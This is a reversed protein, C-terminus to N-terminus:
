LWGLLKVPEPRAQTVQVAMCLAIAGDINEGASPGQRDALGARSPPRAPGEVLVDVL